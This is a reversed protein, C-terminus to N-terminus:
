NSLTFSLRAVVPTGDANLYPRHDNTNLGVELVHDGAPLQGVSFETEYVRGLKLGNLYLHAHGQGAVHATEDEASDDLRVFSFDTVELRLAFGATKPEGVAQLRVSPVPQVTVGEDADHSMTSIGANQLRTTVEGANKFTLTLPIFSGQAFDTSHMMVHAGDMALIGEAQGPVVVAGGAHRPNVLSVMGAAPSSASLIVDPAGANEVTLTVMYMSPRMEMAYAKAGVLSVDARPGDRMTYGLIGVLGLLCIVVFRKM